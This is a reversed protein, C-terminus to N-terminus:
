HESEGMETGPQSREESEVKKLGYGSKRRGRANQSGRAVRSRRKKATPKRETGAPPAATPRGEPLSQAPNEEIRAGDRQAPAAPRGVGGQQDGDGTKGNWQQRALDWLRRAIELTRPRTALIAGTGGAVILLPAIRRARRERALAYRRQAIVRWALAVVAVNRAIGAIKM